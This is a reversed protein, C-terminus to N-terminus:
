LFPERSPFLALYLRKYRPKSSISPEGPPFPAKLVEQAYRFSQFVSTSIAPEGKPFPGHLVSEAYSMSADASKAINPEGLPFPGNLAFRAYMVSNSTKTAIAPEGMPFPGHLVEMAYLCSHDSSQAIAHEGKPFPAKLIRLAYLYSFVPSQAIAHEGKPFPAKIVDLAYHYSFEALPKIGLIALIKWLKPANAIEIPKDKVHMVQRGDTQAVKVGNKFIVYLPNKSLYYEATAEQSTCWKTNKAYTCAAQVASDLPVGPGGIQILKYPPTDYIVKAGKSKSEEITQRQTKLVTGSVKDHLAELSHFDYKNIDPSVSHQQLLRPSKKLQLFTSLAPTMRFSDEPFRFQGSKVQRTLWELLSGHTPDLQSLSRITSEPVSPYKKSLLSIRDELSSILLRALRLLRSM